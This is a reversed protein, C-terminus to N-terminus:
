GASLAELSANVNEIDNAAQEPTMADIQQLTYKPRAAQQSPQSSSGPNQKNKRADAHTESLWKLGSDMDLVDEGKKFVVQGEENLDVAQDAILAKILYNADYFEESLKPTLTSEITKLRNVKQLEARQTRETELETQTKEFDKQLKTLQKNLNALDTNGQEQRGTLVEQTKTAFEEPDSEGDWGLEKFLKKYKRLSQAEKDKRSYETKGYQKEHEVASHHYELLDQGNELSAIAAKFEESTLM